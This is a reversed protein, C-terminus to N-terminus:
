LQETLILGSIAEAAGLTLLSRLYTFKEIKSLERNDHITSSYSDWLATLATIDM